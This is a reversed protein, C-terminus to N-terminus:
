DSESSDDSDDEDSDSDSDGGVALLPNKKKAGLKSLDMTRLDTGKSAQSAVPKPSRAAAVMEKLTQFGSYRTPPRPRALPVPTKQSLTTAQTLQSSSPIVPTSNPATTNAASAAAPADPMETDSDNNDEPSSEEDTSTDSGDDSSDEEDPKSNVVPTAAEQDSIDSESESDADKPTPSHSLFRAPKRFLTPSTRSSVASASRSKNAAPLDEDEADGEEEEETLVDDAAVSYRPAHSTHEANEAGEHNVADIAAFTWSPSQVTASKSPQSENEEAEAEDEDDDMDENALEEQIDSEKASSTYARLSSTQAHEPKKKLHAKLKGLTPHVSNCAPDICHVEKNGIGHDDELHDLWVGRFTNFSQGCCRLEIGKSSSDHPPSCLHTVLSRLDRFNADSHQHCVIPLNGTPSLTAEAKQAKGSEKLTSIISSSPVTAEAEAEDSDSGDSTSPARSSVVIAEDNGNTDNRNVHDGNSVDAGAITSENELQTGPVQVEQNSTSGNALQKAAPKPKAPPKYNAKAGTRPQEDPIQADQSQARETRATSNISPSATSRPNAKSSAQVHKVSGDHSVNQPLPVPTHQLVPRPQDSSSSTHRISEPSQMQYRLPTSKRGSSESGRPEKSGRNTKSAIPLSPKQFVHGGDPTCSKQSDRINGPLPVPSRAIIKQLSPAHEPALDQQTTGSRYASLRRELPTVATEIQPINTSQTAEMSNQLFMGNENMANTPSTQDVNEISDGSQAGVFSVSRPTRTNPTKTPSQFAVKTPRKLAGTRSASDPTRVAQSGNTISGLFSATLDFSQSSVIDDARPSQFTHAKNTISRSSPTNASSSSPQARANNLLDTGSQISISSLRSKNRSGKPRGRKNPQPTVAQVPEPSVSMSYVDRWENLRAPIATQPTSSTASQTTLPKRIQAPAERAPEEEVATEYTESDERANQLSPSQSQRLRSRSLSPNRRPVPLEPRKFANDSTPQAPSDGLEPSEDKVVPGFESRGTYTDQTVVFSAGTHSRSSRAMRTGNVIGETGSDGDSHESETTPIPEDRLGNLDQLRDLPGKEIRQRKKPAEDRIERQRKQTHSPLLNSTPPLSFGRNVYAPVVKIMRMKPDPEAEFISSVTDGLDM